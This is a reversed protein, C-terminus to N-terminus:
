WDTPSPAMAVYEESFDKRPPPTNSLPPPIARVVPQMGEETLDDVSEYMRSLVQPVEAFQISRRKESKVGTPTEVTLPVKSPGDGATSSSGDGQDKAPSPELAM